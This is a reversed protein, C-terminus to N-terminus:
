VVIGESEEVKTPSNTGEKAYQVSTTSSETTLVSGPAAAFSTGESTKKNGQNPLFSYM